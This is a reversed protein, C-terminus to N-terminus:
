WKVESHYLLDDRTDYATLKVAEVRGHHATLEPFSLMFRGSNLEAASPFWGVGAEAPFATATNLAELLLSDTVPGLWVRNPEPSPTLRLPHDLKLCYAKTQDGVMPNRDGVYAHRVEIIRSGDLGAWNLIYVLDGPRSARERHTGWIGLMVVLLAGALGLAGIGALITLAVRKVTM